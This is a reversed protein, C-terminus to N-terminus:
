IHIDVYNTRVQMLGLNVTKVYNNLAIKGAKYAEIAQKKREAGKPVPIDAAFFGEGKLPRVCGVTHFITLQKYGHALSFLNSILLSHSHDSCSSAGGGEVMWVKLLCQYFNVGTLSLYLCLCLGELQRM